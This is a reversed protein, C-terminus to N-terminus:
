KRSKNKSKKPRDSDESGSDHRSKGNAKRDVEKKALREEADSWDEGSDGEDDFGSGSEDDSADDDFESESDEESSM